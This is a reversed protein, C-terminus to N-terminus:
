VVRIDRKAAAQQFAGIAVTAYENEPALHRTIEQGPSRCIRHRSRCLRGGPLVSSVRRAGGGVYRHFLRHGAQWVRTGNERRGFTSPSFRASCSKPARPWRRRPRPQAGEPISHDDKVLLTIDSSGAESMALEAANRLSAGVASPGSGQTLPLILAVKVPGSGITDSAQKRRRSRTPASRPVKM